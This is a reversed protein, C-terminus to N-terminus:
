QKLQDLDRLLFEKEEPSFNSQSIITTLQDITKKREKPENELELEIIINGLKREVIRLNKGVQKETMNLTTAIEEYSRPTVTTYEGIRYSFNAKQKSKYYREALLRAEEPRLQKLAKFLCVANKKVRGALHQFNEEYFQWHRLAYKASQTERNHRTM